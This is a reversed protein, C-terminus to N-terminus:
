KNRLHVPVYKGPAPKRAPDPAPSEGSSSMPRSGDAPSADRPGPRERLGQLFRPAPGDAPSDDRAM